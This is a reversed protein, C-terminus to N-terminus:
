AFTSGANQAYASFFGADTGAQHSYVRGALLDADHSFDEAVQETLQLQGGVYLRLGAGHSVFFAQGARGDNVVDATVIKANKDPPPPLGKGGQL